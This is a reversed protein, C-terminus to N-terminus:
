SLGLDDVVVVITRQVQERSVPTAPVPPTGAPATTRPPRAPSVAPAPAVVPVFQASIIKQRKGDQFVDFDAATLDRVVAGNRDTVVADISVVDVAVRFRPPEQPSQGSAAAVVCATLIVSLRAPTM